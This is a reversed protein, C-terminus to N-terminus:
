DFISALGAVLIRFLVLTLALFPIALLWAVWGPLRRGTRTTNAVLAVIPLAMFTAAHLVGMLLLLGAVRALSSALQEGLDWVAYDHTKTFEASVLLYGAFILLYAVDLLAVLRDGTTEATPFLDDAYGRGFRRIAPAMGAILTALVATEIVELQWWGVRYGLASFPSQELSMLVAVVALLMVALSGAIVSIVRRRHRRDEDISHLVRSWLDSSPEVAAAAHLASLLRQELANDDITV